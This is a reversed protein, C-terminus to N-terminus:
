KKKRYGLRWIFKAIRETDSTDDAKHLYCDPIGDAHMAEHLVTSLERYGGSEVICIYRNDEGKVDPTDTIGDIRDVFDLIFKGLKFTHTKM